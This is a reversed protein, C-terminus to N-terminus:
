IPDNAAQKNLIPVFKNPPLCVCSEHSWWADCETMVQPMVAEVATVGRAAAWAVFAERGVRMPGTRLSDLVVWACATAKAVLVHNPAFLFLACVHRACVGEELTMPTTVVRVRGLETLMWAFATPQLTPFYLRASCHRSGVPLATCTADYLACAGEFAKWNDFVRRGLMNHVAHMRCTNPSTQREFYMISSQPDFENCSPHM